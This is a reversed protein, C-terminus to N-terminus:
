DNNNEKANLERLIQNYIRIMESVSVYLKRFSNNDVWRKTLELAIYENKSLPEILQLNQM